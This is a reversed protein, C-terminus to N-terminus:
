GNGAELRAKKDLFEQTPNPEDQCPMDPIDEVMTPPEVPYYTKADKKMGDGCYIQYIKDGQYFSYSGPWWQSKVVVVGYEKTLKGSKPDFYKDDINYTRVMWAPLGGFAQKDDAIPKLRPEFPDKAVERKMLEEPEVDEGDAPKPEMHKVRGQNLISPSFHQWMELNTMESVSPKKIEGEEPTNEEIERIDDEKFRYLGKATLTTSQSIRAIQARLLTKETPMFFPNTFIPRNVDGSFLYKINRANKIDEPTLDPLQVWDELPSNCVWYVNKNVGTGREEMGEAQGDGGEGADLTGEAIYYDKETGRIKGWLRLQQSGTKQSM